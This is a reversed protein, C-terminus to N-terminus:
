RTSPAGPTHVEGALASGSLVCALAIALAFRKMISEGKLTSDDTPFLLANGDCQRLLAKWLTANLSILGSM